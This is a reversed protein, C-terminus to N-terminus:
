PSQTSKKSAPNSFKISKKSQEDVTDDYDNL